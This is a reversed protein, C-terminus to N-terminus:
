VHIGGQLRKYIHDVSQRLMFLNAGIGYHQISTAMELVFEDKMPVGFYECEEPWTPDIVLGDRDLLWAHELPILGPKLAYGECYTFEDNMMLLASNRYCQGMERTGSLDNVIKPTMARGHECLIRLWPHDCNSRTAMDYMSRVFEECHNM